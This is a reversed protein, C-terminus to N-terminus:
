KRSRGNILEKLRQHLSINIESYLRLEKRVILFQFCLGVRNVEEITKCNHAITKIENVTYM